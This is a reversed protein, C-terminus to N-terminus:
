ATAILAVWGDKQRRDALQLGANEIAAVVEAAQEDLIGSLVLAGGRHVRASLGTELMKILVPALINALVLQYTGSVEQLSGHLVRVVHAAGNQRVNLRTVAVANPDNDIALVEAAGLRAAALALIGTGTGLDLVRMGPQILAELAEVCLQTTPHLGTGFAMGPDMELVLEEPRPRYERWTPKIVIHESLHLIPITEKWGATWDTDAIPKFTPEPVPGLQGLHWLAEAVQQRREALQEDAALYARVTVPSEPEGEGLEIAVGQPAYRSLVEAVSEAIEPIVTVSVELWEMM